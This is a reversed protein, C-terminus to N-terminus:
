YHLLEFKAAQIWDKKNKFCLRQFQLDTYSYIPAERTAWITFFRGAICSVQTQDMPQSSDRSFSIAIWELIRAQLVHVSSGSLSCDMPDCLISYLQAVLVSQSFDEVIWIEAWFLLLFLELTDNRIWM